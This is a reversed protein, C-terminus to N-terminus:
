SKIQAEVTDIVAALDPLIEVLVNAYDVAKRAAPAPLGAVATEVKQVLGILAPLDELIEPITLPM